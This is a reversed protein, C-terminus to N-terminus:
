VRLWGRLNIPSIKQILENAQAAAKFQPEDQFSPPTPPNATAYRNCKGVTTVHWEVVGAVRVERVEIVPEDWKKGDVGEVEKVLVEGARLGSVYAREQCLGKAGHELDGMRVVDGAFKVTPLLPDGLLPPRSLYSSPSFHTVASPYRQVWSDVLTASSFSSVASPLLNKTLLSILSSDSMGM